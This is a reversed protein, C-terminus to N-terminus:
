SRQLYNTKNWKGNEYPIVGSDALSIRTRITPPVQNPYKSHTSFMDEEVDIFLGPVNPLDELEHPLSLVTIRKTSIAGVLLYKEGIQLERQSLVQGDRAEPREEAPLGLKLQTEKLM